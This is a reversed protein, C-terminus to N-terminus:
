AKLEALKWYYGGSRNGRRIANSIASPTVGVSLAADNVTSFFVGDDRIVSHKNREALKQKFVEDHYHRGRLSDGIKRKHEETHKSGLNISRMYEKYEPTWMKGQYNPNHEGKWFNSRRQIEEPTFSCGSTGGGGVCINYGHEPDRTNYQDILKIEEECAEEKTLGTKLIAHNFGDWGYKQFARKMATCTRYNSGNRWRVEPDKGTIGIYKKGNIKNEHMYVTYNHNEMIGRKDKASNNLM